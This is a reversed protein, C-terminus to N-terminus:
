FWLPLTASPLPMLWPRSCPRLRLAPWAPMGPFPVPTLLPIPGAWSGHWAAVPPCTASTHLVHVHRPQMWVNRHMLGACCSLVHRVVVPTLSLVIKGDPQGTVLRVKDEEIRQRLEKLAQAAAQTPGLKSSLGQLRGEVLPQQQSCRM